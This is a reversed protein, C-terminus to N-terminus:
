WGGFDGGDFGGGGGGDFWGGGSDAMGGMDAGGAADAGMMGAGYMMPGYALMSGMMTAMFLTSFIDANSRYYGSTYGAYQPGSNWYPVATGQAGPVLRIQPDGGDAVDTACAACAPVDRVGAGAPAYSVDTVSLGHRPDFFCPPRHAPLEREAMRAAVCALRWRGEDLAATVNSAEEPTRMAAAKYKAAEYYDLALQLDTRGEEGLRPDNLDPNVRDLEEGFATIDEDLTKRVTDTAIEQQKRKRRMGFYIAGGGAVLLLVLMLPVLLGTSGSNSTGATGVAGAKGSGARDTVGAVFMNLAAAPDSPNALRAENALDGVPFGVSRTPLAYMGYGTGTSAPAVLVYVGPRGTANGINQTLVEPNGNATALAASPLVAVYIPVSSNAIQNELEAQQASNLLTSALPDVYVGTARLQTGVDDVTTQAQATMAGGFVLAAVTTLLAVVRLVRM